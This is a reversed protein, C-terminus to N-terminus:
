LPHHSPYYLIPIILSLLPSTPELFSRSSLSFFPFPVRSAM